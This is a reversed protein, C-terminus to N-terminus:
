DEESTAVVVRDDAKIAGVVADRKRLDVDSLDIENVKAFDKLGALDHDSPAFFIKGAETAAAEETARAALREAEAEAAAKEAAQAEAAAAEEAALREAEARERAEALAVEDVPGPGNPHTKVTEGEPTATPPVTTNVGDGVKALNGEGDEITLNQTDTAFGPAVSDPGAFQVLDAETAIAGVTVVAGDPVQIFKVEVGREEAQAVQSRPVVQGKNFLIRKPLRRPDTVGPTPIQEVVERTVIVLRSHDHLPSTPM